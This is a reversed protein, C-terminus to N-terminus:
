SADSRGRKSNGKLEEIDDDSIKSLAQAVEYIRDIPAALKQSLKQVDAQSFMQSGDERVVSLAVLKARIDITNMKAKKGMGVVLSSEFADREAATLGRVKVQGGWEPIDVYEYQETRSNLIEERTLLRRVPQESKGNGEAAVGQAQPESGTQQEHM